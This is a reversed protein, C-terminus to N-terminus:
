VYSRSMCMIILSILLCGSSNRTEPGAACSWRFLFLFIFRFVNRIDGALGEDVISHCPYSCLCYPSFSLSFFFILFFCFSDRALTLDTVHICFVDGTLPVEGRFVSMKFTQTQFFFPSKVFCPIPLLTCVQLKVFVLNTVFYIQGIFSMKAWPKKFSM